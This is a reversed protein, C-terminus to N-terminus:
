LINIIVKEILVLLKKVDDITLSVDQGTEQLSSMQKTFKSDIMGLNHTIVHRKAFQLEMFEKEETSLKSLLDVEQAKFLDNARNLNQFSNGLNTSNYKKYIIKLFGEFISVCDELCNGLFNYAIERNYKRRIDEYAALLSRVGECSRTLHAKLNGKGCSPCFTAIGYVAYHQGCHDCDVIRTLAEEAYYRVSPLTGSKYELSIRLFGNNSPHFSGVTQRLMDDFQQAVQRFILSKVWEMQEKTTFNNFHDKHGCYPCFLEDTAKGAEDVKRGAIKFYRPQCDASPCERGVMGDADPELPISFTQSDDNAEGIRYRNLDDIAM